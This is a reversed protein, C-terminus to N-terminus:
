SLPGMIPVTAEAEGSHHSWIRDSTQMGVRGKVDEHEQLSGKKMPHTTLVGWLGSWDGKGHGSKRWLM